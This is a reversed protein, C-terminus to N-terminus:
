HIQHPKETNFAVIRLLEEIDFPKPLFADAGCDRVTREVNPHASIMIIPINKTKEQSKLQRAIERGDEGSLLVDLVIVDPLNETLQLLSTGRSATRVDYGEEQLMFELAELISREDDVVFIKKM